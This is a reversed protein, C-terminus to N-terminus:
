ASEQDAMFYPITGGIWNGKPLSQMVSHDGALMLLKGEKIIAAAEEVTHLSKM